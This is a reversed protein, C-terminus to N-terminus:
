WSLTLKAKSDSFTQKGTNKKGNWKGKRRLVLSVFDKLEDLTGDFKYNTKGKVKRKPLYKLLTDAFLLALAQEYRNDEDDAVFKIISYTFAYNTFYIIIIAEVQSQSRSQYESQAQPELNPQIKDEKTDEGQEKTNKIIDADAGSTGEVEPEQYTLLYKIKIRHHHSVKDLVNTHQILSKLLNYNWKM